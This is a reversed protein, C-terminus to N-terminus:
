CKIPIFEHTQHVGLSQTQEIELCKLYYDVLNAWARKPKPPM